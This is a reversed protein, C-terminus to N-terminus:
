GFVKEVIGGLLMLSRNARFDAISWGGDEAMGAKLIHTPREAASLSFPPEEGNKTCTPYADPYSGVMQFGPLLHIM